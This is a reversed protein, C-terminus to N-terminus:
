MERIILLTAQKKNNIAGNYVAVLLQGISIALKERQTQYDGHYYTVFLLYQQNKMKYSAKMTASKDGSVCVCACVQKELRENRRIDSLSM